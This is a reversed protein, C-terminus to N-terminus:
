LHPRPLVCISRHSDAGPGAAANAAVSSNPKAHIILTAAVARERHRRRAAAPEEARLIVNESFSSDRGFIYLYARLLSDLLIDPWKDDPVSCDRPRLRLARRRVRTSPFWPSQRGELLFSSRYHFAAYSAPSGHFGARLLEQGDRLMDEALQVPIMSPKTRRRALRQLCQLLDEAYAM